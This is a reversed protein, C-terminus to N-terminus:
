RGEHQGGKAKNFQEVSACALPGSRREQKLAEFYDPYTVSVYYWHQKNRCYLAAVHARFREKATMNELGIDYAFDSFMIPTFPEVAYRYVYYAPGNTTRMLETPGLWHTSYAAYPLLNYYVTSFVIMLVPAAISALLIRWRKLPPATGSILAALLLPAVFGIGYLIGFVIPVYLALLATSLLASFSQLPYAIGAFLQLVMYRLPSFLLICILLWILYLRPVGEEKEFIMSGVYALCGLVLPISFAWTLIESILPSAFPDAAM